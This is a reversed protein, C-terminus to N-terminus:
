ANFEFDQIGPVEQAKFPLTLRNWGAQWNDIACSFFLDM